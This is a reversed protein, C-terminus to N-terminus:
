HPKLNSDKQPVVRKIGTSFRSVVGAENGDTVGSVVPLRMDGQWVGVVIGVRPALQDARPLALSQEDVYTKGPELMALGSGSGLKNRFTGERDFNWLQHGRDDELHTFLNWGPDLRSVPKWYLKLDLTEGPGGAEPSLEYGVLQIKGGFDIFAKHATAPLTAVTNASLDAGGQAAAPSSGPTCAPAALAALAVLLCSRSISRPSM